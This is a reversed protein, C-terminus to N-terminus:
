ATGPQSAPLPLLRQMRTTYAAVVGMGLACFALLAVGIGLARDSASGRSASFFLSVVLAILFTLGMLGLPALRRWDVTPGLTAAHKKKEVLLFEATADKTATPSPPHTLVRSLVVWTRLPRRILHGFAEVLTLDEIKRPQLSEGTVLVEDQHEPATPAPDLANPTTM